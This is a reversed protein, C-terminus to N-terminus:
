PPLGPFVIASQALYVVGDTQVEKMAEQYVAHTKYPSTKATFGPMNM